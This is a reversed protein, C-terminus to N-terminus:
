RRPLIARDEHHSSPGREHLNLDDNAADPLVAEALSGSLPDELLGALAFADLELQDIELVMGQGHEGLRRRRLTELAVVGVLHHGPPGLLHRLRVAVDEDRGLVVAAVRGGELIGQIVEVLLPASLGDGEYAIATRSPSSGHLLQAQHGDLEPHSGDPVGHVDQGLHEAGGETSLRLGELGELPVCLPHQIL